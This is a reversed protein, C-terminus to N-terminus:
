RGITSLLLRLSFYSSVALSLIWLNVPKQTFAEKSGISMSLLKFDNKCNIGQSIESDIFSIFGKTAFSSAQKILQSTQQIKESASRGIENLRVLGAVTSEINRILGLEIMKRIQEKRDNELVLMRVLMTRLDFVQKSLEGLAPQSDSGESIKFGVSSISTILSRTDDKFTKPLTQHLTDSAAESLDSFQAERNSTDFANKSWSPAGAL